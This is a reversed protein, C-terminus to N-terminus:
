LCVGDARRQRTCVLGKSRAGTRNRRQSATNAVHRAADRLMLARRNYGLGAWARLVTGNSARSLTTWNPFM